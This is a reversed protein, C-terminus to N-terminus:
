MRSSELYDRLRYILSIGWAHGAERLSAAAAPAVLYLVGIATLCLGVPIMLVGTIRDGLRELRSTPREEERRRWTAKGANGVGWATIMVGVLAIVIGPREGFYSKARTWGTLEIVNYGVILGVFVIVTVGWAMASVGRFVHFSPNTTSSYRTAIEARRKVIMDLGWVAIGTMVVAISINLAAEMALKDFVVAAAGGVLFIAIALNELTFRIRM